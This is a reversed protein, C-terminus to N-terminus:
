FGHVTIIRAASNAINSIHVCSWHGDVSTLTFLVTPYEYVLINYLLSLLCIVIAHLYIDSGYHWTFSCLYCVVWVTHHLYSCFGHQLAAGRTCTGQPHWLTVSPTSPPMRHALTMRDATKITTSMFFYDLSISVITANVKETVIEIHMNCVHMYIVKTLISM